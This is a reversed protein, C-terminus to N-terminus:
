KKEKNKPVYRETMIDTFVVGHLHDIEHCVARAFYDTATLRFPKGHRDFAEVIVKKPRVVYGWVDKVSLCGELDSIAGKTYVITPNVLEVFNDDVEVVAVQKLIGVQPGALGCGNGARMTERMDTLLTGLNDDFTTVPKCEKHLLENDSTLIKRLAM